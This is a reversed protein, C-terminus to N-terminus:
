DHGCHITHDARDIHLVGFGATAPPRRRSPGTPVAIDEGAGLSHLRRLIEGHSRLLGAVLVLLLIIVLGEVVVVAEM